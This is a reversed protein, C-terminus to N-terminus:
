TSWKAASYTSWNAAFHSSWNVASNTSWNARIRWKISLGRHISLNDKLHGFFSELGNTSKPIQPNDLYHFMDSFANILMRRAKRLFVHMYRGDALSRETIFAKYKLDWDYLDRLWKYKQELTSIQSIRKVIKLLEQGAQSKPNKTLWISCQREVHVVCRQIVISKKYVIKISKLISRHGDCTISEIQFGVSILNRFDEVIEQTQEDNTIRYLITNKIDNDRYVVLCIDNSFYTGDIILHVNERHNVVHIPVKDLYKNFIDQLNRKSHGSLDSLYDLTQHDIIWRKFWVLRNSFSVQPNSSTFFIGCNKCKFRRKNNRKGWKIVDLSGCAWCRKKKTNKM